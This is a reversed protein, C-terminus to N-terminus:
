DNRAFKCQSSTELEYLRKKLGELKRPPYHFYRAEYLAVEVPYGECVTRYAAIVAGTRAKGLECHVLAPQNKPNCLIDIIKKLNETKPVSSIPLSFIKVGLDKAIISEEKCRQDKLCENFGRLNIISKIRYNIIKKKLEQPDLQSSRYVLGETVPVFRTDKINFSLFVVLACIFAVILSAKLIQLITRRAM